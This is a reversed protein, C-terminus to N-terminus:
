ESEKRKLDIYPSISEWPADPELPNWRNNLHRLFQKQAGIGGSLIRKYDYRGKIKRQLVFILDEETMDYHEYIEEYFIGHQFDKFPDIYVDEKSTM